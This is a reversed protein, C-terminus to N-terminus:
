PDSRLVWGDCFRGIINIRFNGTVREGVRWEHVACFFDVGRPFSIRGEDMRIEEETRLGRIWTTGVEAFVKSAMRENINILIYENSKDKRGALKLESDRGERTYWEGDGDDL